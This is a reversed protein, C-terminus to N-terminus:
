NWSVPEKKKNFTDLIFGRSLSHVRVLLYNDSIHSVIGSVTSWDEQLVFGNM